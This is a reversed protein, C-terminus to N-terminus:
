RQLFLCILISGNQASSISSVAYDRLLQMFHGSPDHVGDSEHSTGPVTFRSLSNFLPLVPTSSFVTCRFLLLLRATSVHLSAPGESQVFQAHIGVLFRVM